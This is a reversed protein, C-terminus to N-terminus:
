AGLRRKPPAEGIDACPRQLLWLQTPAAAAALPLFLRTLARGAATRLPGQDLEYRAPERLVAANLPLADAFPTFLDRLRWPPLFRVEYDKGRGSARVVAAALLRPLVSLLPLRYHPEVLQLTHGGAFYCAGDERLVRAIEHMLAWPDRAHEYVHNCVVIDFSRDAFPLAEGETCIFSLNTLGRALSRARAVAALDPDVGVVTAAHRAIEQAILGASCGVDLVRLASLDARYFRRLLAVIRRGRRARSEPDDVFGFSDVDNSFRGKPM